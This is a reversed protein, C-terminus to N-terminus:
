RPCRECPHHSCDFASPNVCVENNGGSVEEAVSSDPVPRLTESKLRTVAARVDRRKKQLLRIMDTLQRERLELVELMDENHSNM